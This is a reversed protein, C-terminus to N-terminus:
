PTLESTTVSGVRLAQLHVESAFPASGGLGETHCAYTANGAAASTATLTTSIIGQGQNGATSGISAIGDAEKGGFKLTCVTRSGTTGSSNMGTRASLVYSGAPLDPLTAITTQNASNTGAITVFNTNTRTVERVESPGILGQDGKDGKPGQAGTAGTAGQAGRLLVGSAFDRALLSGNKVESSRVAGAKIQTAGISNRPLSLAAWTTGGTAAVLATM